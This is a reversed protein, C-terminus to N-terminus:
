DEDDYEGLGFKVSWEPWDDPDSYERSVYILALVTMAGIFCACCVIALFIITARMEEAEGEM